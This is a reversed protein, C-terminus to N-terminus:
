QNDVTGSQQKFPEELLDRLVHEVEGASKETAALLAEFVGMETDAPVSATLAEIPNTTTEEPLPLKLPLLIAL